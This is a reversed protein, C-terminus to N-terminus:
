GEAARLDDIERLLTNEKEVAIRELVKLRENIRRFENLDQPVAPAPAATARANDLELRRVKKRLPRVVFMRLFAAYALMAWFLILFVFGADESM